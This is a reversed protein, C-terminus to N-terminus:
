DPTSLQRREAAATLVDSRPPAASIFGERFRLAAARARLGARWFACVCFDIDM